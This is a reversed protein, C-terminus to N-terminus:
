SAACTEGLVRRIEQLLAAIFFPKSICGKFGHEEYNAMVPDAAYGSSVIARAQPDLKLIETLADKGSMGGPITLDMLLCDYAEGRQLADAYLAIAQKGDFATAVTYGKSTLFTAGLECIMKEDDMILIRSNTRPKTAPTQLVTAAPIAASEAAPLYLTFTTGQGPQSNVLIRGGHKTVISYATALGLGSSERRTSFYPDFIKDIDAASIGVGEDRVTCRLYDGAALGTVAAATLTCNEINVYLYGGKPMAQNSNTALNSFVQAMQSKDVRAKWLSPAANFVLKVKSGTLDFKVIEEIFSGISMDQKVPDGGKAFTLLQSTLHAARDFAREALELSSQSDHDEPLYSRALAINGFLSTLSNNFDHAIGGALIGLSTLKQMKSLEQRAETQATIDQSTGCVRLPSGSRLDRSVVAACSRVHMTRGDKHLARYDLTFNDEYRLQQLFCGRIRPVDDPHVLELAGGPMTGLENRTYGYLDLWYEDVQFTERALDWDWYGLQAARLVYHLQDQAVQRDTADLVLVALAARGAHRTGRLQIDVTRRSGDKRSLLRGALQQSFDHLNRCQTMKRRLDAADLHPFLQELTLACAEVDSYGSLESATPSLALIRLSDADAILLALAFQDFLHPNDPTM